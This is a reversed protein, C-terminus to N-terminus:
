GGFREASGTAEFGVADDTTGVDVSKQVLHRVFVTTFVFNNRMEFNLTSVDMDMCGGDKWACLIVPALYLVNKGGEGEWGREPIRNIKGHM